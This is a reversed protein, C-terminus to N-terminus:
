KLFRRITAVFNRIACLIPQRKLYLLVMVALIAAVIFAIYRWRYPDPAPESFKHEDLDRRKVNANSKIEAKETNENSTGKREDKTKIHTQKIRKVAGANKVRGDSLNVDALINGANGVQFGTSDGNDADGPPFFEIETIIIEGTQTRTTDIAKNTKESVAANTSTSDLVTEKVDRSAKRTSACSALLTLALLLFVLKKM